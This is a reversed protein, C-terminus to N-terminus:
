WAAGKYFPDDNEIDDFTIDLVNVSPRGRWNWRDMYGGDNHKLMIKAEDEDWPELHYDSCEILEYLHQAEEETLLIFTWTEGENDNYETFGYLETDQM